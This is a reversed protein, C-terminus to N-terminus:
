NNKKIEGSNFRLLNIWGVCFAIGGIPTIIGVMKPAGLALSYLSGSFLLTGMIWAWYSVRWPQQVPAFGVAFLALAHVFQYLVATHWVDLSHADLISKLGHAGFAGTLVAVAGLMGAAKIAKNV